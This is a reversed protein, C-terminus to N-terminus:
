SLPRLSASDRWFHLHSKPTERPKAGRDDRREERPREGRDEEEGTGKWDGKLGARGRFELPPRSTGLFREAGEPGRVCSDASDPSGVNRSCM